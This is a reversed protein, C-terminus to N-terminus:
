QPNDEYPAIHQADLTYGAGALENDVQTTTLTGTVWVAAFLRDIKFEEQSKVYVIQNSPPPPTHICAGFYPVLLFESVQTADFELPVVYGPLRVRQGNLAEVVPASNWIQRMEAMLKDAEESSNQIQEAPLTSLQEFLSEPRWDAPMLAEWELETVAEADNGVSPKVVLAALAGLGALGAV